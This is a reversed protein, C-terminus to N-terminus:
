HTLPPHHHQAEGLILDRKGAPWGCTPPYGVKQWILTLKIDSWYLTLTVNIESWYLFLSAQGKRPVTTWYKIERRDIEIGYENWILSLSSSSHFIDLINPSPPSTHLSLPDMWMHLHPDIRESSFVTIDYFSIPRIISQNIFTWFSTVKRTFAQALVPTNSDLCQVATSM